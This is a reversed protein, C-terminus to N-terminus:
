MSRANALYAKVLKTLTDRHIVSVAQAADLGHQCIRVDDAPKCIYYTNTSLDCTWADHQMAEEHSASVFMGLPVNHAANYYGDADLFALSAPRQDRSDCPGLHLISEQGILWGMGMIKAMHRKNVIFSNERKGNYSGILRKFGIGQNQCWVVFHAEIAPTQKYVAFISFEEAGVPSSHGWIGDKAHGM